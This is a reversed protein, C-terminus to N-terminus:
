KRTNTTQCLFAVCILTNLLITFGFNIILNYTKTFAPYNLWLYNFMGLFPALAAYYFIFGISMWFHPDKQVSKVEEIKYLQWLYFAAFVIVALGGSVIITTLLETFPKRYLAEVGFFIVFAIAYGPLIRRIFNAEPFRSFFWPLFLYTVFFSSNYLWHNTIGNRGLTHGTIEILFIFLWFFAFAKFYRPRYKYNLFCILVTIALVAQPIYPLIHKPFNM